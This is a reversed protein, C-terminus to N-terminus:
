RSREVVLGRGTMEDLASAIDQEIRDAPTDPFAAAFTETIEARSRPEALLRWLASSVEDLYFVEGSDPDVLFTEADIETANM